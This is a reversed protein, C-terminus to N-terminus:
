APTIKATVQKAIEDMYIKDTGCCGGFIKPNLYNFLDVMENALNTSNSCKLEVSNDLEEPTLPSTNAQIGKFRLKVLDTKNFPCSLAKALVKPHVCNVMYCVPHTTTSNDITEIANHISTGDILKGNDRIMFSIIYPIGTAEMAKAMGVAETLAPMIGAFLYDVKAMKFLNAQWSHFEFANNASLVDTAKYADGKCGMLGGIFMTTSATKRIGKLFNVNDAIINEDFQSKLTRERNARRTPTTVLLPLQYKAAIEIYEKFIKQMAFKAEENYVLAALAVIEDPTINFERKIREGIAGEMLLASSEKFCDEFNM